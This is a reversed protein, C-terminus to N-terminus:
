RVFPIQRKRKVLFEDEVMLDIAQQLEVSLRDDNESTAAERAIAAPALSADWPSEGEGNAKTNLFNIILLVDLPNVFGDNDSDLYPPGPKADSPVAGGGTLNIYNIILLVDLPSVFTDNDVDLPKAKNFWPNERVAIVDSFESTAAPQLPTAPNNDADLLWTATTTVFQGVPVLTPPTFTFSANGLSNTTVNTFGLFQDGARFNPGITNSYFEIRFDSNVHSNLTSTILTTAATATAATPVPFNQVNDSDPDIEPTAPNDVDNPTVGVNGLDIGLSVTSTPSRSLQSSAGTTGIGKWFNENISNALGGLGKNKLVKLCFQMDNVAKRYLLNPANAYLFLGTGELGSDPQAPIVRTDRIKLCERVTAEADKPVNFPLNPLSFGADVYVDNAAGQAFGGVVNFSSEAAFISDGVNALTETAGRAVGILNGQIRNSGASNLEIGYGGNASILNRNEPAVGGILVGVENDLFVGDGKNGVALTGSIDTGIYNGFVFSSDSQLVIGHQSFRNLALGAVLSPATQTLGSGTVNLGDLEVKLISNLGQSATQTNVASGPQTYGDLITIDTITPLAHTARISFWSHSWDPDIAAAGTAPIAADTAATTSSANALTVTGGIGDDKYYFHQPDGSPIAFTITQPGATLNANFIAERLTGLGTDSTNTVVFSPGGLAAVQSFESTNNRLGSGSDTIDTATATVFPQGAPLMPLDLTFTVNGSADTTVNQAGIYTKGEGFFGSQVGGFTDEDREPNSFFELRFSSSPTSALTGQIRTGLNLETVSTILPYNQLLNAGTDKDPPTSAPPIDNVAFGSSGLAIGPGVNSFIANQSIVNGNGAVPDPVLTGFIRVGAGLSAGGPAFGNFAITNGTIRTNTGNLRVLVGESRNGVNLMGSVDTGILNNQIAGNFAVVGTLNGSIVNASAADQGGILLTGSGAIVGYSNGLAKAGARDTGILNGEITATNRGIAVGTLNASILNRAPATTGGVVTDATSISTVIGDNPKGPFALTGSVDPGVFSGEVRVGATGSIQIKPGDVRNLVLGRVTSAVGTAEVRILGTALPGANQGSLEVRLITNLGLKSAVTNTNPIADDGTGSTGSGQTTGDIVVPDTVTPLAATPAISFWSHQWDPDVASVGTTPLAADDAVTTTALNALTVQGAVGDNTYYVHGPDTAPINFTITQVGSMNNACNIADRLTVGNGDVTSTVTFCASSALGPSFESTDNAPTTAPARVTIDTATATLFFQGVPRNAVNATFPIVGTGDTSVDLSGLFTQGEGRGDVDPAAVAFFELRYSSNPMSTLTGAIKTGGGTDTVSTLIPFNQLNNNGSDADGADTGSALTQFLNIGRGRNSFISNAEIATGTAGFVFVGDEGNGSIVNGAGATTGGILNGPKSMPTSVVVGSRANPLAATGSATTGIFNGQVVNGTGGISVGNLANGSIVNGAGAATGGITNGSGGSIVVGASSLQGSNVNAVAANGAANTGIFNGQVVTNSSNEILVGAGKNGSIVNRAGAVTGGIANNGGSQLVYVGHRGNALAATGGVNTGIFNGQIFNGTVAAGFTVIGDESNGSVLNASGAATGGITNGPSGIIAFGSRNAVAATGAANMGMLNGRVANGTAAVGDFYVGAGSTNGSLLNRDAAATGGATNNSGLLRIGQGNASAATGLPNTGLFNGALINGNSEVRIGDGSFRNVVLGRITSGSSGAGLKLGHAGAGASSGNLEIKLVANLGLRSEVTNSNAIADDSADAPTSSGQTFGDIVIPDSIAPLAGIGSSGVTITHPGPGPINFAITDAVGVSANSDLIAQRLSGPGSNETNTVLLTALLHRTELCEFFMRRTLCRRAIRIRDQALGGLRMMGLIGTVM